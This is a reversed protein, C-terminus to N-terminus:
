PALVNKLGAAPLSPGLPNNHTTTTLTAPLPTNAANNGPPLPQPNITPLPLPKSPSVPQQTVVAPQTPTSLFATVMSTPLTAASSLAAASSAPMQGIAVTAAIGSGVHLNLSSTLSPIPQPPLLPARPPNDNPAIQDLGHNNHDTGNRTGDMTITLYIGPMSSNGPIYIQQGNWASISGNAYGVIAQWAYDMDLDFSLVQGKPLNPIIFKVYGGPPPPDQAQSQTGDSWDVLSPNSPDLHGRITKPTVYQVLNVHIGNYRMGNYNWVVPSDGFNIPIPTNASFSQFGQGITTPTPGGIAQVEIHDKVYPLCEGPMANYDFKDLSIQFRRWPTQIMDMYLLGSDVHYNVHDFTFNLQNSLVDNVPALSNTVKAGLDIHFDAVAKRIGNHIPPIADAITGDVNDGSNYINAAQIGASLVRFVGGSGHPLQIDIRTVLDFNVTFSPGGTVFYVPDLLGAFNPNIQVYASNGHTVYKLRLIDGGSPTSSFNGFRDKSALQAFYDGTQSLTLSFNGLSGGAWGFYKDVESNIQAKTDNFLNQYNTGTVQSPYFNNLMDRVFTQMSYGATGQPLHQQLALYIQASVDKTSPDIWTNQFDDFYGLRFDFAAPSGLVYGESDIPDDMVTLGAPSTTAVNHAQPAIVLGQATALHAGSINSANVQTVVPTTAPKTVAVTSPAPAGNPVVLAPTTSLMQRQELAEIGLRMPDRRKATRRRAPSSQSFIRFWFGLKSMVFEKTTSHRGPASPPRWQAAPSAQKAASNRSVAFGKYPVSSEKACRM